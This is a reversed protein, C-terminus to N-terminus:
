AYTSKPRVQSTEGVNVELLNLQILGSENEFFAHLFFSSFILIQCLITLFFTL